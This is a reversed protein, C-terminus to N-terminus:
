DFSEEAAWPFWDPADQSFRQTWVPVRKDRFAAVGERADAGGGTLEIGASEVRHAAMPGSAGVNQWLLQRTLVASVPAVQDRILHALETAAGLVDSSPLVQRVLGARLAEAADFRRGTLCWDLAQPLGVIKPLFWSSAGDPVIGRAAFVFGLKADDAVLRFDMPLTMSAGFGIAHGNIAAIVPKLSRLM